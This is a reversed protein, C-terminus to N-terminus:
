PKTTRPSGQPLTFQNKRNRMCPLWSMNSLFLDGPWQSLRHTEDSISIDIRSNYSDWYDKLRPRKFVNLLLGLVPLKGLDACRILLTHTWVCGPRDMEPAYWTRAIAYFGAEKLSYGTLYSKFGSVMSPGSMDSLSLMSRKVHVPLDASTALLSHGDSYGHLTQDLQIQNPSVNM